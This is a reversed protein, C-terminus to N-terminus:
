DVLAVRKGPDPGALPDWPCGVYAMNKWCSPVAKALFSELDDVSSTDQVPEDVSALIEKHCAPHHCSDLLPWSALAQLGTRQEELYASPLVYSSAAPNWHAMYSREQAEAFTDMEQDRDREAESGLVEQDAHLALHIHHYSGLDDLSGDLSEALDYEGVFTCSALVSDWSSAEAHHVFYTKVDRFSELRKQCNM